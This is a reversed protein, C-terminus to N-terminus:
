DERGEEGGIVLRLTLRHYRDLLKKVDAVLRELKELEELANSM